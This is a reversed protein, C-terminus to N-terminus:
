SACCLRGGSLMTASWCTSLRVHMMYTAVATACQVHGSCPSRTDGVSAAATLYKRMEAGTSQCGSWYM